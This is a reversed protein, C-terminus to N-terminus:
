QYYFVTNTTVGQRTSQSTAPKNQSNYTYSITMNFSGAGTALDQLAISTANNTSSWDAKLMAAAETSSLKIPSVKTDFTNDIVAILDWSSTTADYSYSQNKIVNGEASYTFEFKVNLAMPAGLAPSGNYTDQRIILGSSNYTFVTSDVSTFGGLTLETARATYRSSGADYYIKSVASDIGMAQFQPNKQIVHTIIGSANRVVRIDNEFDQGNSKGKIFERMLRKSADYTYNTVLSDAGTKAVTKILLEGVSNGNTNGTGGGDESSIEKQCATLGVMLSIAALTIRIKM